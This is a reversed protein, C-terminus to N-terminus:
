EDEDEKEDDDDEEFSVDEYNINIQPPNLNSNTTNFKFEFKTTIEKKQVDSLNLKILTKMIQHAEKKDGEEVSLNFLNMLMLEYKERLFEKDEEKQMIYHRKASSYYDTAQSNRLKFELRLLSIINYRTKGQGILELARDFIKKNKVTLCLEYKKPNIGIIKNQKEDFIVNHNPAQREVV